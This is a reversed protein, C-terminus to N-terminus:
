LEEIKDPGMKVFVVIRLIAEARAVREAIQEPTSRRVAVARQYCGKCLPENGKWWCRAPEPCIRCKHNAVTMGAGNAVFPNSARRDSEGSSRSSAGFAVSM